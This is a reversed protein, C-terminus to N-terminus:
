DRRRPTAKKAPRPPPAPPWYDTTTLWTVFRDHVAPPNLRASWEAGRDRPVDSDVVWALVVTAERDAPSGFYHDAELRELVGVMLEYVADRHARHWGDSEDDEAAEYTSVIVDEIPEVHDLGAQVDWEEPNFRFDEAPGDTWAAAAAASAAIPVFTIASDDSTIAYGTLEGEAAERCADFARRVAGTADDLVHSLDGM